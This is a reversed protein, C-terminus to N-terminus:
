ATMASEQHQERQGAAAPHPTALHGDPGGPGVVSPGSAAEYVDSRSPDLYWSQSANLWANGGSSTGKMVVPQNTLPMVKQSDAVKYVKWTRQVVSPRVTATTYSVPYPGM